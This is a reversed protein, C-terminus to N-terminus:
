LQVTAKGEANYHVQIKTGVDISGYTKLLKGIKSRESPTQYYTAVTSDRHGSETEFTIFCQLAEIDIDQDRIKNLGPSEGLHEEWSEVTVDIIVAELVTNKPTTVVDEKTPLTINKNTM